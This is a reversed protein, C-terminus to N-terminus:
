YKKWGNPLESGRCIFLPINNKRCLAILEDKMKMEEPSYADPHTMVVWIGNSWLSPSSMFYDVLAEPTECYYDRKIEGNEVYSTLFGAHVKGTDDLAAVRKPIWHASLGKQREPEASFASHTLCLFATILIVLIIIKKM